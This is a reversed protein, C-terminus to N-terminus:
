FTKAKMEVKKSGIQHIYMIYLCFEIWFKLQMHIIKLDM